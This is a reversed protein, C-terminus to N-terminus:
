QYGAKQRILTNMDVPQAGTTRVGGDFSPTAAQQQAALLALLNDADKLLEDKSDGQLRAALAPPLNKEAAVEYRLLQSQATAATKEAAAARDALKEAETKDRDRLQQLEAAAQDFQRKAETALREAERRAERESTLAKKGAEGLGEPLADGATAAPATAAGPTASTAATAGTAGTTTSTTDDAM